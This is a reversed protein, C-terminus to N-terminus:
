TPLVIPLASACCTKEIQRLLMKLSTFADGQAIYSFRKRLLPTL